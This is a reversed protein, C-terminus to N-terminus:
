RNAREEQLRELLFEIRGIPIYFSKKLAVDNGCDQCIIENWFDRHFVGRCNSCLRLQGSLENSHIVIEPTIEIYGLQMGM